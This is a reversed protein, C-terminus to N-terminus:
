LLPSDDVKVRGFNIQFSGRSRASCGAAAKQAAASQLPRAVWQLTKPPKPSYFTAVKCRSIGNQRRGAEAKDMKQTQVLKARVLLEKGRLMAVILGDGGAEDLGDNSRAMKAAFRACQIMGAPRIPRSQGRPQLWTEAITNEFCASSPGAPVDTQRPSEACLTRNIPCIMGPHLM